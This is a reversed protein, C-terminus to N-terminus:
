RSAAYKWNRIKGESMWQVATELRRTRTDDSKAGTVWEIYERRASPSFAEYTAHAKRNKKIAALMYAPAKLPKKPKLERKPKVGADTLAAAKRVLAVFAKDSPLDKLSTIRGFQGMAERSKEDEALVSDNRFGFTCHAKFAAMACFIGKYDFHPFSWKMTEEIGPVAQHVLDRIHELIPKAFPQAKSIYADVKRLRPAEGRRVGRRGRESAAEGAREAGAVRESRESTM